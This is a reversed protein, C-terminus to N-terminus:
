STKDCCFISLCVYYGRAVPLPPDQPAPPLWPWRSLYNPSLDTTSPLLPAPISEGPTPVPFLDEAQDTRHHGLGGRGPCRYLGGPSPALTSAPWAPLPEYPSSTGGRPGPSLGLLGSPKREESLALLWLLSQAAPRGGNKRKLLQKKSSFGNGSDRQARVWLLPSCLTNGPRRPSMRPDIHPWVLAAVPLLARGSSHGQELQRLIAVREWSSAWASSDLSASTSLYTGLGQLQAEQRGIRM